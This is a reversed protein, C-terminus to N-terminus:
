VRLFDPWNLQTNYNHHETFIFVVVLFNWYFINNLRLIFKINLKTCYHFKHLLNIIKLTAFLKYKIIIKAFLRIKWLSQSTSKFNPLLPFFYYLILLYFPCKFTKNDSCVFLIKGVRIPSLYFRLTPTNISSTCSKWFTVLLFYRFFSDLFNRKSLTM